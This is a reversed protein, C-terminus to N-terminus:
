TWAPTLKGAADRWYPTWALACLRVRVDTKKPRIAVSELRDSEARSELATMETQISPRSRPWTRSSPPWPRRRAPSTM